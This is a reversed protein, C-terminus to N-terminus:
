AFLSDLTVQHQFIHSYNNSKLGYTSVLVHQIAKRTHTVRRFTATREEILRAYKADVVFPERWHKMECLTIVDDSRDLLMDIQGGNWQTGDSDTFPRSSWACTNCLMGGIGLAAKIQAIHHLCVQEFAYGSWTRIAPQGQSNLWFREDRGPRGAVFRLHFLTFLDTLQFLCDKSSKGIAAYQQVFDCAVLDGIAKTLSGGSKIKLMDKLEARSLGRQKSALAEVIRRYLTADDFLSRYLFEYERRLLANRGFFLNDINNAFPLRRDLMDLYYPIGGLIMYAELVQYRSWEMHKVQKLYAETEALTFPALYISCTVRGYLGGKDGIMKNMMWTTASGCVFLKLRNCTSGWTNWFYSFASLFNSKHTDIWPLEDLFVIIRDKRLKSLYEALHKFAEQWTSVTGYDKKSKQSLESMFMALQVRKPTHYMGTFSFDFRNEFMSRILFTKGVRRRGYLAVLESKGSKCRENILDIERERGVMVNESM